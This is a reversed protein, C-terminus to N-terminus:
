YRIPDPNQRHQRITVKHKKQQAELEEYELKPARTIHGAFTRLNPGSPETKGGRKVTPSKRLRGLIHYSELHERKLRSGHSSSRHRRKM